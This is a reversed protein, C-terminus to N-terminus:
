PATRKKAEETERETEMKRKRRSDDVEPAIDCPLSQGITKCNYGETIETAGPHVQDGQESGWKPLITQKKTKPFTKLSWTEPHGYLVKYVTRSTKLLTPTPHQKIPNSFTQNYQLYQFSSENAIFERPVSNVLLSM